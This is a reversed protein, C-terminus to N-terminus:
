AYAARSRDESYVLQVHRIGVTRRAIRKVAQVLRLL